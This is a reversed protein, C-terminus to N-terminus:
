RSCLKVVLHLREDETTRLPPLLMTAIGCEVAAGDPRSRDGVMLAEEASVGLSGLAHEFMRPDPKQFGREYSLTFVDVMGACGAAEFHPRLDFHIDSVVAIKIGRERLAELTGRVDTAFLNYAVDADIAYLAEAFEADFGADRFVAMSIEHHFAANTDMGPTDLRNHDGNAALLAALDSEVASPSAPRGLSALSREIAWLPGPSTALTGRWDFLVAAFTVAHLSDADTQGSGM